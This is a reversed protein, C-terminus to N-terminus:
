DFIEDLRYKWSQHEFTDENTEIIQFKSQLENKLNSGISGQTGTIIIKKM